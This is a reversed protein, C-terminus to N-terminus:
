TNDPGDAAWPDGPRWDDRGLLAAIDQEILAARAPKRMNEDVPLM